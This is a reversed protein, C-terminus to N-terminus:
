NKESLIMRSKIICSIIANKHCQLKKFQPMTIKNNRNFQPHFRNFATDIASKIEHKTLSQEALEQDINTANIFSELLVMLKEDTQAITTLTESLILAEPLTGTPTNNKHAEHMFKIGQSYHKNRPVKIKPSTPKTSRLFAVRPTKATINKINSLVCAFLCIIKTYNKIM